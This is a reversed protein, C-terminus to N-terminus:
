KALLLKLGVVHHLGLAGPKIFVEALGGSPFMLEDMTPETSPTRSLQEARARAFGPERDLSGDPVRLTVPSGPGRWDALLVDRVFLGHRHGRSAPLQRAHWSIVQTRYKAVAGRDALANVIRIGSYSAPLLTLALLPFHWKPRPLRVVLRLVLTGVGALLLSLMGHASRHVIQGDLRDTPIALFGVACIVAVVIAFVDALHLLPSPRSPAAM